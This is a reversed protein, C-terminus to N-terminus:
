KYKCNPQSKCNSAKTAFGTKEFYKALTDYKQDASYLPLPLLLLLTIGTNKVLYWAMFIYQPTPISGHM